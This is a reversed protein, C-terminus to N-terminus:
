PQTVNHMTTRYVADTCPANYMHHAAHYQYQTCDHVSQDWQYLNHHHHNHHVQIINCM